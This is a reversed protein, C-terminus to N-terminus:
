GLCRRLGSFNACTHSPRRCVLEMRVRAIQRCVVVSVMDVQYQVLALHAHPTDGKATARSVEPVLLRDPINFRLSLFRGEDYYAPEDDWLGHERCLTTGGDPSIFDWVRRLFSFCATPGTTYSIIFRVCRFRSRKGPTGSYQYTCHVAYPKIGERQPLRATFFIHGNPFHM